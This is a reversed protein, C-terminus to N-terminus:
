CFELHLLDNECVLRVAGLPIDDRQRQLLELSLAPLVHRNLLDEVARGRHPQTAVKGAIWAQVDGEVRLGVGVESHLHRGLRELQRGAIGELAQQSLPLFPVVRMRALLAPAFRRALADSAVAHLAGATSMPDSEIAAEIEGAGVNTTLLILCQRFNISRGEGDEMTGKDFVQYFLDHVDRHAKDFEDLLVVSHPRRRVAETLKGGKGFGVYGPPAGKVTSVTHAEQFESMNLVILNHEGGVMAEALAAAMETKGTGTPGALMFVGLPREPSGLGSRAVRVAEALIMVAHEQGFVRDGIVSELKLVHDIDDVLMRGAPIGTWDALVEAIAADDVWPRVFAHGGQIADLEAYLREPTSADVAKTEDTALLRATLEQERALRTHMDKLSNECHDIRQLLMAMREGAAAGLHAEAQLASLEGTLAALEAGALQLEVPLVQQSQAVRACATDLLSIAKDPLQRSPLHRRSLHVAARVASDRVVVGHHEAFQPAIARVMDCATKEDPEGILVPQFRRTLAADPEIFQKYESWTTAAIMRLTGRALMPKLLNVADGTGAQGGAGILTHAEDCFLIVPRTAAQAVVADILAKLRAEFEGRAGAGAQLRGLDLSLLMANALAQPVDGAVIRQALAEVIATKGVGAEGVLIPNNQRRRLVIDMLQRLEAERGIVVDIEGASAQATLDTCWADLVSAGPDATEEGSRPPTEVSAGTEEADAVITGFEVTVQPMPIREFETSLRYLWRQLTANQLLGILIHASRVPAAPDVMQGVVLGREVASELRSSLDQVASADAPLQDLARAIHRRARDVSAGYHSLILAMDSGERALMAYLWHELEVFEHRRSRCLRTAEVLAGYPGRGLRAFLTERNL